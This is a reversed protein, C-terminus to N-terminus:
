RYGLVKRDRHEDARRERMPPAPAGSEVRFPVDIMFSTM